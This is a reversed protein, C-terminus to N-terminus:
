ECEGPHSRTLTTTTAQGCFPESEFSVCMIFSCSLFSFHKLAQSLSLSFHWVVLKRILRKLYNEAILKTTLKTTSPACSGFNTWCNCCSVDYVSMRNPIGNVCVYLIREMKPLGIVINNLQHHSPEIAFAVPLFIPPFKTFIFSFVFYVLNGDLLHISITFPLSFRMAHANGPSMAKWWNIIIWNLRLTLRLTCLLRHTHTHAECCKLQM